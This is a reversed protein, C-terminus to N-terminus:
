HQPGGATRPPLSELKAAAATLEAALTRALEATLAFHPSAHAQELTEMPSVLYRLTLVVASGGAGRALDITWRAIPALRAEEM